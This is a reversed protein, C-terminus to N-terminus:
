WVVNGDVLFRAKGEWKADSVTALRRQLEAANKEYVAIAETIGPAPKPAFTVEGRDVLECADGLETALLWVLDKANTSRPHPTYSAKDPPVANLVRIFKPREADFCEVFYERFTKM